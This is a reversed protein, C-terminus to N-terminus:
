EWHFDKPDVRASGSLGCLTCNVDIVFDVGDAKVVTNPDPVHKRDKSGKCISFDVLRNKKAAVM